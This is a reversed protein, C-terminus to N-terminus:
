VSMGRSKFKLHDEGGPRVYWPAPVYPKSSGANTIRTPVQLNLPPAIFHQGSGKHSLPGIAVSRSRTSM